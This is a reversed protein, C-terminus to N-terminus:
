KFMDWFSKKQEQQGAMPAYSTRITPFIVSKDSKSRMLAHYILQCLQSHIDNADEISMEYENLHEYLTTLINIQDLKYIAAVNHDKNMALYTNPTIYQNVWSMIAKKGETNTKPKSTKITIENGKDDKIKEFGMLYREFDKKQETLEQIFINYDVSPQASIIEANAPIVQENM